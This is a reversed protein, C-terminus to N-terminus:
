AKNLDRSSNAECSRRTHTVPDKSSAQGIIQSRKSHALRSRTPAVKQSSIRGHRSTNHPESVKELIGVIRCHLSLVASVNYDVNSPGFARMRSPSRRYRLRIVMLAPLSARHVIWGRLYTHIGKNETPQCDHHVARYLTKRM